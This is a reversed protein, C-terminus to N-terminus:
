TAMKIRYRFELYIWHAIGSKEPIRSSFMESTMLNLGRGNMPFNKPDLHIGTGKSMIELWDAVDQRSWQKPDARFLMNIVVNQRFQQLLSYVPYNQKTSTM